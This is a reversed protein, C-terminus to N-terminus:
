QQCIILSSFAAPKTYLLLVTHMGAEANGAEPPLLFIFSSIQIQQLPSILVVFMDYPRCWLINNGYLARYAVMKECTESHYIIDEVFYLDGKFHRYVKKLIVDRLFVAGKRDLWSTKMIYWFKWATLWFFGSQIKLICMKTKQPLTIDAEKFNM